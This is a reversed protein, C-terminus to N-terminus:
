ELAGHELMRRAEVGSYLDGTPMGDKVFPYVYSGQIHSNRIRYNIVIGIYNRDDNYNDMLDVSTIEIRKEWRNLAEVTYLHLLRHLVADNPEFVLEPLRSGFEPNMMREGIRTELILHISQNIREGANAEKISNVKGSQTFTLPFSIGTGILELLNKSVTERAVLQEHESISM